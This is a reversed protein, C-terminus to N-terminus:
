AYQCPPGAACRGVARVSHLPLQAVVIILHAWRSTFRTRSPFPSTNPGRLIIESNPWFPSDPGM